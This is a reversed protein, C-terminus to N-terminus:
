SGALTWTDPREPFPEQVSQLPLEWQREKLAERGDTAVGVHLEPKCRM